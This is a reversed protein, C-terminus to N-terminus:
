SRGVAFPDAGDVQSCSVSPFRFRREEPNPVRPMDLSAVEITEHKMGDELHVLHILTHEVACLVAKPRDSKAQDLFIESAQCNALYDITGVLSYPKKSDSLPAAPTDRATARATRWIEVSGLCDIEGRASPPKEDTHPTLKNDPAFVNSEVCRARLM